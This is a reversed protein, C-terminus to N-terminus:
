SEPSGTLFDIMEKSWWALWKWGIDVLFSWFQSQTQALVLPESFKFLELCWLLWHRHAIFYMFFRSDLIQLWPLFYFNLTFFRLFKSKLDSKPWYFEEHVNNIFHLNSQHNNLHTIYVALTLIFIVFLYDSIHKKPTGLVNFKVFFHISSM